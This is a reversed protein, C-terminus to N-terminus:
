IVRGELDTDGLVYRETQLQIEPSHKDKGLMDTYQKM